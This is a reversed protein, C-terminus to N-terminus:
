NILYGLSPKDGFPIKYSVLFGSTEGDIVRCCYLSQASETSSSYSWSNGEWWVYVSLELPRSKYSWSCLSVYKIQGFCSYGFKIKNRKLDLPTAETSTRTPSPWVRWTAEIAIKLYYFSECITLHVQPFVLSRKDLSIWERCYSKLYSKCWWTRTNYALLSCTYLFTSINDTFATLQAGEEMKISSLVPLFNTHVSQKLSSKLLISSLCSTLFAIEPFTLHASLIALEPTLQNIILEIHLKTYYKVCVHSNEQLM